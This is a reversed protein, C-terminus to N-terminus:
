ATVELVRVQIPSPEKLPLGLSRPVLAVGPPVGELLRATMVATVSASYGGEGLEVQVTQGDQIQLKEADQPHLELYPSPLRPQLVKSYLLLSGRDFLRTVPVALLGDQVEAIEGPNLWGLAPSVGRQVAPALQVGLGQSNEYSTGGYYLDARGIIPWQEQVDALMQYSLGAYDKVDRAIQAMVRSAFQYELAMGLRQGIRGTVAFDPLTGPLQPLAPYFRQVRREGSTYSGERETYAQVPLVVDALRATATMFLDQVVLFQGQGFQNQTILSPEDRIPDVGVLYLAKASNLAAPLDDVPRFGVDWAGQDNARQWVGLLGNNPRGVHDTAILLNACAQALARSAAYGTGESGFIVVANEAEAFSKAAAQLEDSRLLTQVSKPLDPRKASLSNLLALVLAAESGYTYGLSQRAYRDLSTPRPNAVILNAGREAAQKVRLWWVPAEEHLDCAVVLIATGAGMTAFNTGPAFGIQATLDGGAMSSDLVAKGGLGKALSALNFLDENALRGSALTLTDAGAQRFREAVLDLAEDWSAEVLEGNKRVLPQQLRNAPETFHYGFRGKDCIWIENVQENQRPMARKIAV